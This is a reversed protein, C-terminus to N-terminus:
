PGEFLGSSILWRDGSKTVTPTENGGEITVRATDGDVEVAVEADRLKDKDDEGLNEAVFEVARECTTAGSEPVTEYFAS